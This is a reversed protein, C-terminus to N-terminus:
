MLTIVEAQSGGHPLSKITKRIRKAIIIIQRGPLEDRLFLITSQNAEDHRIRFAIGKCAEKVQLPQILLGEVVDFLQICIIRSREKHIGTNWEGEQARIFAVGPMKLPDLRCSFTAVQPTSPNSALLINNGPPANSSHTPM